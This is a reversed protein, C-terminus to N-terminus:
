SLVEYAILSHSQDFEHLISIIGVRGLHEDRQGAERRRLVRWIRSEAFNRTGCFRRRINTRQSRSDSGASIRTGLIFFNRGTASM